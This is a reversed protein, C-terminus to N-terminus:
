THSGKKAIRRAIARDVKGMPFEGLRAPDVWRIESHVKASPVDGAASCEIAHVTVKFHTYAHQFVGVVGGPEILMDLEEQWERVLCDDISEDQLCKGGPFEWLGGLLKGVPRRGILVKGDRRLVGASVIYHPIESKGRKVPRQNQIGLAFSECYSSIPCKSCTPNKPICITAGLDMLAQNFASAYSEPMRRSAWIQFQREASATTADLDYNIIRSIVRRLNGDLAVVRKGFAISAIAAATYRGIGPLSELEAPDQPMRGRYKECIIRAASHLNHARQYYGLGEWLRLVDDTEASALQDLTPFKVLWRVYYPIVTEVRTQQLMVEAVWIAYPDDVERWPLNRGDKEFWLLLDNSLPDPM